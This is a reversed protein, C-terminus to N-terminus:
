SVYAGDPDTSAGTNAGVVVVNAGPLGEGRDRDIIRGSIKGTTGTWAVGAWMIMLAICCCAFKM